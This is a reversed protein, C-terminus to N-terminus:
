KKPFMPPFSFKGDSDGIREMAKKLNPLEVRSGNPVIFNLLATRAITGFPQTRGDVFELAKDNMDGYIQIGNGDLEAYFFLAKRLQKNEAKLREREAVHYEMNECNDERAELIERKLADNKQKMERIQEGLQEDKPRFNWFDFADAEAMTGVKALCQQCEVVWISGEKFLKVEKGGCLPCPKLEETM